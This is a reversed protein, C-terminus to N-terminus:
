VNITGDSVRSNRRCDSFGAHPHQQAGITATESKSSALPQDFEITVREERGAGQLMVRKRLRLVTISEMRCIGSIIVLYFEFSDEERFRSSNATDITIIFAHSCITLISLVQIQPELISDFSELGNCLKACGAHRGHHHSPRLSQSAKLTCILKKNYSFVPYGTAM